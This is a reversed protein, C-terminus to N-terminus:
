SLGSRQIIRKGFLQLTEWAYPNGPWLLLARLLREAGILRGYFRAEIAVQHSLARRWMKRTVKLYAAAHFERYMDDILRRAERFQLGKNKTISPHQTGRRMRVVIDNLGMIRCQRSVRLFFEWDISMQANENFPRPWHEIISRRFMCSANVVKCQEQYLYRFMEQRDQPYQFGARLLGPFYAFPQMDDDLWEAVGSVLCVDPYTELVDVEQEFRRPLSIDDQEQIAIYKGVAFSVARNMTAALGANQVNSFIRLRSESKAYAQLVDPSADTSGDDVAILEWDRFTQERISEIADEMTSAGNYIPLVVSVLPSM